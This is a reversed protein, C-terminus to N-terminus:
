GIRTGLPTCVGGAHVGRPSQNACVVVTTDTYFVGMKLLHTLNM